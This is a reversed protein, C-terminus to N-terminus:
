LCSTVHPWSTSQTKRKKKKKGSANPVGSSALPPVPLSSGHLFLCLSQMHRVASILIFDLLATLVGLLFSLDHCLRAGGGVSSYQCMFLIEAHFMNQGQHLSVCGAAVDAKQLGVCMGGHMYHVRGCVCQRQRKCQRDRIVDHVHGCLRLELYNCYTM